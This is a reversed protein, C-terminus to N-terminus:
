ISSMRRLHCSTRPNGHAWDLEFRNGTAELVCEIRDAGDNGLISVSGGCVWLQVRIRKGKDGFSVGGPRGLQHGVLVFVDEVGEACAVHAADALVQCVHLNSQEGCIDNALEIHPKGVPLSPLLEQHVRLIM